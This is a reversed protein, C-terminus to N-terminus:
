RAAPTVVVAAHDEHGRRSVVLRYRGKKLELPLRVVVAKGATRGGLVRGRGELHWRFPSAGTAVRFRLVGGREVRYENRPLEIYGIRLVGVPARESLNGALDRLQLALRYRGAPLPRGDVRGGWELRAKGAARAKGRVAARGDVLLTPWAKSGSRYTLAVRDDVGDGDPSIRTTSVALSRIRPPGTDLVVPTPVLFTRRSRELHLRLRYTGNRALVGGNSLGNWVWLVDGRGVHEDSALTRVVSDSRDVIAADVKDSKRFRITLRARDTTCDCTPSFRRDFRPATIPSRELKLRETVVFAAVTAGVLALVAATLAIQRL